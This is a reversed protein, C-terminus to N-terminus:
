RCLLIDHIIMDTICCVTLLYSSFFLFVFFLVQSFFLFVYSSFSLFFLILLFQFSLLFLLSYCFSFIWFSYFFSFVSFFLATHDCRYMISGLSIGKLETFCQWRTPTCFWHLGSYLIVWKVTILRLNKKYMYCIKTKCYIATRRTVKHALRLSFLRVHVTIVAHNQTYLYM